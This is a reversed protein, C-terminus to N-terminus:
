VVVIDKMVMHLAINVKTTDAITSITPTHLYKVLCQTVMIDWLIATRVGHGHGGATGVELLSICDVTSAQILTNM